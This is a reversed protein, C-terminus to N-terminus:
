YRVRKQRPLGLLSGVEAALASFLLPLFLLLLWQGANPVFATYWGQPPDIVLANFRTPIGGLSDPDIRLGSVLKGGLDFVFRDEADREAYVTQRASYVAQGALRYYLEVGNGPRAHEIDLVIKRVWVDGEWFFQPDSDTSVYWVGDPDQENEYRKISIMGLDDMTITREGAMGQGTYWATQVLVGVGQALWLFLAALYCGAILKKLNM